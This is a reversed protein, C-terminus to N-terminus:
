QAKSFAIAADGYNKVAAILNSIDSGEEYNNNLIKLYANFTFRATAVTENENFITVEITDDYNAPRLNEVVLKGNEDLVDALLGSASRGGLTIKFNTAKEADIGISFDVNYGLTASFGAFVNNTDDVDFSDESSFETTIVDGENKGSVIDGYIEIADLLTTLKAFKDDSYGFYAADKNKVNSIYKSVSAKKEVDGCTVTFETGIQGPTLDITYVNEGEVLESIVVEGDVKITADKHAELWEKTIKFKVRLSIGQNLVLASTFTPAEVEEPQEDSPLKYIYVDKQSSTSAYCSFLPSGSNPNIRMWNRTNEGQAKVTAVGNADIEVMWAADDNKDECIKLYNSSSSAAYLYGADVKFAYTGAKTGEELTIVMIGDKHSIIGASEDVSIADRNNDKQAASMTYYKEDIIGVVIITDGVKLQSVDTVLQYGQIEEGCVTCVGDVVNHGTAPVNEWPTLIAKCDACMEGATNGSETCTEKKPEVIGTINTHECQPEDAVKLKYICIDKQGSSYCAFISSTNNYRMWNKTNSGQAKVTAVGKDTISINWSSNASLATETKLYNKSSSAAYLYGSGTNFAFTGATTGNELTLVQVDGSINSITTGNKTITAQGRNNGNQTTSLAFNYDNAVIIVKDGANLDSVNTVLEYTESAAKTGIAIAPIMSLVMITGLLLATLKKLFNNKMQLYEM